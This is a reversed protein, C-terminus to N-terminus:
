AAHREILRLAGGLLDQSALLLSRCGRDPRAEGADSPNLELNRSPFRDVFRGVQDDDIGVNKRLDDPRAGVWGNDGLEFWM